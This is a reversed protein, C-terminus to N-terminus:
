GGAQQIIRKVTDGDTLGPQMYRVVGKRDIVLLTPLAMIGLADSVKSDSDLLVPYPFPSDKLFSRVTPEPEGMDAALIQLGSGKLERWVPELIQAQIRCPGCWTAWFDVVVVKGPFDRPGLTRGDTTKLRFDTNVKRGGMPPGDASFGDSCALLLLSALVPVLRVPRKMTRYAYALARGAPLAPRGRRGCPILQLRQDFRLQRM